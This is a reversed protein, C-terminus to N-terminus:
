HLALRQLRGESNAAAINDVRVQWWCDWYFLDLVEHPYEYCVRKECRFLVLAVNRSLVETMM